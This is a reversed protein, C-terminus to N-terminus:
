YGLCIECGKDDSNYTKKGLDVSLFSRNNDFKNPFIDNKFLLDASCNMPFVYWKECSTNWILYIEDPLDIRKESIEELAKRVCTYDLVIDDSELVLVTRAGRHQCCRLKPCKDDLAKCLRLRLQSSDPADRVAGFEGPTTICPQGLPTCTLYLTLRDSFERKISTQKFIGAQLARSYLNKAESAVWDAIKESDLLLRANTNGPNQPLKLNFRAPGPLPDYGSLQKRVDDMLKRLFVGAGIARSFPEIRTHELVHRKGGLEVCVDVRPKTSDVKDPFHVRQRESQYHSELLRLVADCCKGENRATM